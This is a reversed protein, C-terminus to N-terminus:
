IDTRMLYVRGSRLTVQIPLGRRKIALYVQQRFHSPSKYDGEEYQVECYCEGSNMFGDFFRDTALKGRRMGMPIEECKIAKWM